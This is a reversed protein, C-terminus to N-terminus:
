RRPPPKVACLSRTAQREVAAKLELTRVVAACHMSFKGTRILKCRVGVLAGSSISAGFAVTVRHQGSWGVASAYGAQEIWKGVM